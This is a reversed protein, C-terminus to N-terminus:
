YFFANLNKIVMDFQFQCRWIYSIKLNRKSVNLKSESHLKQLRQCVSTSDETKIQPLNVVSYYISQLDNSKIGDAFVKNLRDVDSGSLHGNITRAAESHLFAVAVLLFGISILSISFNTYARKM